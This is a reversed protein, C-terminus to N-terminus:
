PIFHDLPIGLLESLRRFHKLPIPAVGYEWRQVIVEATRGKYGMLEGLRKQTLCNRIRAEKLEENIM